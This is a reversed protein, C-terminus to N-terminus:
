LGRVTEQICGETLCKAECSNGVAKFIIEKGCRPCKVVADPNMMKLELADLEAETYKSAM